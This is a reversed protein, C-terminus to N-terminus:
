QDRVMEHLQLCVRWLISCKYLFNHVIETNGAGTFGAM